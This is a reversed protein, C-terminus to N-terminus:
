DLGLIAKFRDNYAAFEEYSLNPEDSFVTYVGDMLPMTLPVKGQLRRIVEDRDYGLARQCLMAGWYMAPGLTFINNRGDINLSKNKALENYSSNDDRIGGKYQFQYDGLYTRARYGEFAAIVPPYHDLLLARYNISKNSRKFTFILQDDNTTHDLLHKGDGRYSYQEVCLLRSNPYRFHNSGILETGCDPAPPIDLGKWGLPSDIEHMNQELEAHRQVISVRYDPISYVRLEVEGKM